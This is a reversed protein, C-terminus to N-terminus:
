SRSNNEHQYKVTNRFINLDIIFQKLKINFKRKTMCISAIEPKEPIRNDSAIIDYIHPYTHPMPDITFSIYVSLELNYISKVIWYESEWWCDGRSDIEVIEWHNKILAQEIHYKYGTQKSM